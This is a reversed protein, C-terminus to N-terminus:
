LIQRSELGEWLKQSELGEQINSLCVMFGLILRERHHSSMTKRTM